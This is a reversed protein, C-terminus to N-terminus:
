HWLVQLVEVQCNETPHSEGGEDAELPLRAPPTMYAPSISRIRSMIANRTNRAAAAGAPIM